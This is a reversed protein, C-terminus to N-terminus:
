SHYSMSNMQCSLSERLKALLDKMSFDDGASDLISEVEKLLEGDSPGEAPEEAKAAEENKKSRQMWM